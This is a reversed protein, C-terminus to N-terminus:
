MACGLCGGEANVAMGCPGLEDMAIQKEIRCWMQVPCNGGIGAPVGIWGIRNGIRITGLSASCIGFGVEALM